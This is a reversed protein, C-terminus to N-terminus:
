LAADMFVEEMLNLLRELPMYVRAIFKLNRFSRNSTWRFNKLKINLRVAILQGNKLELFKNPAAVLILKDGLYNRVGRNATIQLDKTIKNDIERNFSQITGPKNMGPILDKLNDAIVFDERKDM